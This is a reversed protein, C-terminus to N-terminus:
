TPAHHPTGQASRDSLNVVLQELTALPAEVASSIASQHAPDPKPEAGDSAAKTAAVATGPKTVPDLCEALRRLRSAADAVGAREQDAGILLLVQLSSLTRAIKRREDLWAPAPRISSLEYRTLDLDQGIAALKSRADAALGWRQPMSM